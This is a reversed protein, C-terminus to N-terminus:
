RQVSDAVAHALPRALAEALHRPQAATITLHDSTRSELYRGDNKIDFWEIGGFDHQAGLESGHVSIVGDGSRRGYYRRYEEALTMAMAPLLISGTEGGLERHTATFYPRSGAPCSPCTRSLPTSWTARQWQSYWYQQPGM